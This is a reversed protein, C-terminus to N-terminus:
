ETEEMVVSRYLDQYKKSMVESSFNDRASCEARTSIEEYDMTVTRIVAKCFEREDGLRYMTGINSDAEFLEEHQPIGSLLVPLGSAMAELVGNPLGESKSSSVYYDSVRLYESIDKKEGIMLVNDLDSYKNKLEVYNPGNGILLFVYDNLKKDNKIANLIFGQDKRNNFAAGYVFIPKNVPLGLKRRLAERINKDREPYFKHVDVGNQIYPIDLKLKKKYIDHLSKSCCCVNKTHKIANLHMLALINGRFLGYRAPNDDFIYNRCTFVHNDYKRLMYDPFIGLSHIVDPKLEEIYNKILETRGFFIDMKSIPIHTHNVYLLYWELISSGDTNEDYITVFFAEFKEMDLNKIISLIQQTPGTKRCSTYVYLIKIKKKM